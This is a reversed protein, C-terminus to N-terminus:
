DVVPLVTPSAAGAGAVDEARVAFGDMASSDFAPVPEEASADVALVRGLAAHLEVPEPALPSVADLVLRQAQDIELLASAMIAQGSYHSV